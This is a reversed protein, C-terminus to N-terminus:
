LPTPACTVKQTQKCSQRKLRLCTGENNYTMPFAGTLMYQLTSHLRSLVSPSTSRGEQICLPRHVGHLTRSAGHMSRGCTDQIDHESIKFDTSGRGSEVSYAYFHKLAANIKTYKKQGPRTNANANSAALSQLVDDVSLAQSWQVGNVVSTGYAGSHFPDESPVEINRGWRIVCTVDPNSHLWRVTTLMNLVFSNAVSGPHYQHRCQLRLSLSPCHPRM